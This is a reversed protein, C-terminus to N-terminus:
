DAFKLVSMPRQCHRGARALLQRFQAELCKNFVQLPLKCPESKLILLQLQAQTLRALIRSTHEGCMNQAAECDGNGGTDAELLALEEGVDSDPTVRFCSHALLLQTFLSRPFNQSHILPLRRCSAAWACADHALKGTFTM